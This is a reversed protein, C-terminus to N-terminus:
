NFLLWVNEITDQFDEIHLLKLCYWWNVGVLTTQMLLHSGGSLRRWGSSLLAQHWRGGQDVKGSCGANGRGARRVQHVFRQLKPSWKEKIFSMKHSESPLSPMLLPRTEMTSGPASTEWWTAWAPRWSRSTWRTVSIACCPCVHMSCIM